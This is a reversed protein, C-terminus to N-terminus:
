LQGAAIEEGLDGPPDGDVGGGVGLGPDDLQGDAVHGTRQGRRDDLRHVPCHILHAGKLAEVAVARLLAIGKQPLGDCLM